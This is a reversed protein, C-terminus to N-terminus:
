RLLMICPNWTITITIHVFLRLLLQKYISKSGLHNKHSITQQQEEIGWQLLYQLWFFCVCVCQLIVNNKIFRLGDLSQTDVGHHKSIILGFFFLVFANSMTNAVHPHTIHPSNAVRCFYQPSPFPITDVYEWWPLTKEVLKAYYMIGCLMCM